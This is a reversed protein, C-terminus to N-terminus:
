HEGYMGQRKLEQLRRLQQAYEVESIGASKAAERQAPTLTIRTTRQGSPTPPERSVPASVVVSSERAPEDEPDSERQRLGLNEEIFKFYEDSGPSLKAAIAEDHAVGLKRGKPGDQMFELHNKLWNRQAQNIGQLTDIYEEWTTPQQPQTKQEQAAKTMRERREELSAKADEFQMLRAEARAMKRDAEAADKLAQELQPIDNAAQAALARSNASIKASQASTAETEAASIATIISDYEASEARTGAVSLEHERKRALETAEQMRRNYEEARRDSEANARKMDELQKKLSIKEEDEPPPEPAKPPKPEPPKAEKPEPLTEATEHGLEVQIAETEPVDKSDNPNKIVRIRPM